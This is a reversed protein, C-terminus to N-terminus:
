AVVHCRHRRTHPLEVVWHFCRCSNQSMTIVLVKSDYTTYINLLHGVQQSHLGTICFAFDGYRFWPPSLIWFSQHCHLQPTWRLLVDKESLRSVRLGSEQPSHAPCSGCSRSKLGRFKQSHRQTDKHSFVFKIWFLNRVQQALMLRNYQRNARRKM